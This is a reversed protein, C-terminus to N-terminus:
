NMGPFQVGQPSPAGAPISSGPNEQPPEPRAPGFQFPQPFGTTDEEAEEPAGGEAPLPIGGELAQRHLDEPLPQITMPPLGPRPAAVPQPRSTVPALPRQEVLSVTIVGPGSEQRITLTETGVEAIVFEKQKGFADGKKAVFIEGQNGLFLTKTGDKQLFGLFVFQGLARAVSGAEQDVPAAVPMPKFPSPAAVPPTAPAPPKPKKLDFLDRSFGPFDAEERELLDLRLTGKPVEATSTSRPAATGAPKAPGGAVRQQRPTAWYAYGLALGLLGLMLLLFLRQRSM